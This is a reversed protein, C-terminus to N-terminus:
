ILIRDFTTEWPQKPIPKMKLWHMAHRVTITPYLGNIQPKAYESFLLMFDKHLYIANALWDEIDSWYTQKTNSDYYQQILVLGEYKIRFLTGSNYVQHDCSYSEGYIHVIISPRKIHYRM